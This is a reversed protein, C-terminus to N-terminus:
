FECRFNQLTININHINTNITSFTEPILSHVKLLILLIFSELRKASYRTGAKRRGNKSIKGRNGDIEVKDKVGFIFM